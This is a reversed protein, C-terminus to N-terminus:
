GESPGQINMSGFPISWRMAGSFDGSAKAHREALFIATAEGELTAPTCIVITSRPDIDLDLAEPRINAIPDILGGLVHVRDCGDYHPDGDRAVICITETREM